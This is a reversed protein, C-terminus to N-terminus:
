PETKPLFRVNDIHIEGTKGPPANRHSVMWGIWTIMDLPKGYQRDFDSFDLTVTKWESGIKLNRYYHYWGKGKDVSLMVFDVSSFDDSRISFSVGESKGTRFTGELTIWCTVLYRNNEDPRLSDIEFVMYSNKLEGLPLKEAFPIPPKKIHVSGKSNKHNKVHHRPLLTEFNILPYSDPERRYIEKRLEAQRSNTKRIYGKYLSHSISIAFTTLILALIWNARTKLKEGVKREKRIPIKKNLIDIAKDIKPTIQFRTGGWILSLVGPELIKVPVDVWRNKARKDVTWKKKVKERYFNLIGDEGTRGAKWAEKVVPVPLNVEEAMLAAEIESTDFAALKLDLFVWTTTTKGKRRTGSPVNVTRVHRRAWEIEDFSLSLVVRDDSPLKYNLYSRFKILIRDSSVRMLWNTPRLSAISSSFGLMGFATFLLGWMAFFFYDIKNQKVSYSYPVAFAVVFMLLSFFLTSFFPYKFRIEKGAPPPIDKVTLLEM